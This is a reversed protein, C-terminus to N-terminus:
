MGMKQLDEMTKETYGAPVKMDFYTDRQEKTLTKELKTTTMKMKMGNNEIEFELPFGKVDKQVYNQGTMDATIEETAWYALDSGGEVTVLYKTCKYGIIEKTETTPTITVKPEDKKNKKELEELDTKVAVKGMMGSMLMLSKKTKVDNVTINTMITGMKFESRSFDKKFYMEMTSGQMMGIVMQMEPNDTSAEVSYSIHGEEMQANVTSFGLVALACTFLLKKM